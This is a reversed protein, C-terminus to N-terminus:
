HIRSTDLSAVLVHIDVPSGSRIKVAGKESLLVVLFEGPLVRFQQRLAQEELNGVPLNEFAFHDDALGARSVPVVVTNRVSLEFSHREILQLQRQFDVGGGDPAFVILVRARGGLEPIPQADQGACVGVCVSLLLVLKLM